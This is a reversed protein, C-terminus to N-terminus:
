RWAVVGAVVLAVECAGSSFSPVAVADLGLFRSGWLVRSWPMHGWHPCGWPCRGLGGARAARRCGWPVSGALWWCRVAGGLWWGAVSRGVSPVVVPALSVEMSGCRCLVLCCPVGCRLAGCHLAVRCPVGFCLVGCCSAVRRPVSRCVVARSVRVLFVLWFLGGCVGSPVAGARWVGALPWRAGPLLPPPGGLFSFGAGRLRFPM